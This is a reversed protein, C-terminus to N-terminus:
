PRVGSGYVAQLVADTTQNDAGLRQIVATAPLGRVGLLTIVGDAVMAYRHSVSYALQLREAGDAGPTKALMSHQKLCALSAKRDAFELELSADLVQRPQHNVGPAPWASADYPQFLNLRLRQPACQQKVAEAARRLAHRYDAKSEGPAKGLLLILHDTDAKWSMQAFPETRTLTESEGAVAGYLYTSSFVNVEDDRILEAQPSAALGAIDETTCFTVDAFGDLPKVTGADAPQRSLEEVAAGIHYQRYTWFGPIRTALMGHIDRWYAQFDSQTVDAKKYLLAVTALPGAEGRRCGDPAAQLVPACYLLVLAAYFKLVLPNDRRGPLWMM